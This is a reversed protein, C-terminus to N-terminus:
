FMAMNTCEMFNVLCDEPIKDM